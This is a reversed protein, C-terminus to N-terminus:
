AGFEMVRNCVLSDYRASFTAASGPRRADALGALRGRAYRSRWKRVTDECMALDRAIGANSAGDAAVLAIRARLRILRQGGNWSVPCRPFTLAVDRSKFDAQDYLNTPNTVVSAPM